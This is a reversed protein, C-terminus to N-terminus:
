RDGCHLHGAAIHIHGQVKATSEQWLASLEWMSGCSWRCSVQVLVLTATVVEFYRRALHRWATDGTDGDPSPEGCQRYGFICDQSHPFGSDHEPSRWSDM